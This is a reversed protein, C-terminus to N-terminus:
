KFRNFHCCILVPWLQTDQLDQSKSIPKLTNPKILQNIEKSYLSSEIHTGLTLTKWFQKAQEDVQNKNTSDFITRAPNKRTDIEVIMIASSATSAM